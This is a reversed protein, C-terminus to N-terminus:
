QQLKAYFHFDKKQKTQRYTEDEFSITNAPYYNSEFEMESQM